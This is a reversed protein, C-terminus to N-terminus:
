DADYEVPVDFEFSRLPDCPNSNVFRIVSGNKMELQHHQEDPNVTPTELLGEPIRVANWIMRM